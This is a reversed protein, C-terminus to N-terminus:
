RHGETPDVTLWPIDVACGAAEGSEVQYVTQTNQDIVWLNGLCDFEAGAGGFPTIAPAGNDLIPYSGLVAYNNLADLVTIDNGGPFNQMVLLHGNSSDYALGSISLAVFSSDLINGDLDFHKVAGDNWSGIYFTDTAQDYALGRESTGTNPCITNGTVVNTTPDIEFICSSGANVVDVRWFNGTNSNFAGDAAWAEIAGSDDVTDGTKTGDAAYEYDLNDGGAVGLNSLWINTGVTAV